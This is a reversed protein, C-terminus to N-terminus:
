RGTFGSPNTVNSASRAPLPMSAPSPVPVTTSGTARLVRADAIYFDSLAQALNQRAQFLSLRASSVDLQSSAGQEYSLLLLDYVRQAQDVTRQRAAIAARANEREGLAQEYQLQVSERLQTEQLQTQRLQVQAQGIDAGRKFGAFIPIQVGVSLTGLPTWSAERFDVIGNPVIQGGYQAQLQITPMYDARAAKVQQERAAINRDAAQVAPREAVLKEPAVRTQVLAAGTPVELPTTLNIPQDLPLNILRKLDLQALSRANRADVTQPRLTELSVEARMVDLDSAFGAQQRTREQQLFTEAQVLAAQAISDLEAALLAHYYTTRINLEVDAAQEKFSYRAADRVNTFIGVAAGVRGGSYLVQSGNIGVNYLHPSGLGVGALATTLLDGLTTLVATGANQELYAVRQELPLNPNPNFRLPDPVRLDIGQSFGSKFLRTYSSSANVQPLGASRAATIRTEASDIDAKALQMEESQGVARTIAADLTLDVADRSPAVQAPPTQPVQAAAPSLQLSRTVPVSPPQLSQAAAPASMPSVAFAVMILKKLLRM